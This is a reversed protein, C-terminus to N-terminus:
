FLQIKQCAECSGDDDTASPDFNVATEDTCGAIEDDGVGDADADVLCNRVTMVMLLLLVLM